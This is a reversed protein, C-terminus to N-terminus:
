KKDPYKIWDVPYDGQEAGDVALNDDDNAQAKGHRLHDAVPNGDAPVLAEVEVEVRPRNEEEDKHVNEQQVPLPPLRPSIPQRSNSVTGDSKTSNKPPPPPSPSSSSSSSSSSGRRTPATVKPM